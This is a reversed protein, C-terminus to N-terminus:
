PAPTDPQPGVQPLPEARHERGHFVRAVLVSKGRVQYLCVYGGKGFRVVLARLSTDPIARGALPTTSLRSFAATMAALMRDAAAPNKDRLFHDLRDLDALAGPTLAVDCADPM